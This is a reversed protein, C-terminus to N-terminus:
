HTYRNGIQFKQLRKKGETSGDTWRQGVDASGPSSLKSGDLEIDRKARNNSRQRKVLRESESLKALSNSLNQHLKEIKLFAACDTFNPHHVKKVEGDRIASLLFIGLISEQGLCDAECWQYSSRLGIHPCRVDKLALIGSGWREIGLDRRLASVM